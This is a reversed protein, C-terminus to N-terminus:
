EVAACAEVAQRKLDIIANDISDAQAGEAVQGRAQEMRKVARMYPRMIAYRAYEPSRNLWVIREAYETVGRAAEERYGRLRYTTKGAEKVLKWYEENVHRAETRDTGRKYVRNLLPVNRVDTEEGRILSGAMNVMQGVTTAYGGLYGGLLHEVAAPNLWGMTGRDVDNGGSADNLWRSASVLLENTNRYVSRWEPVEKNYPTDKYVPLGLWDRNVAIEVIPAVASPVLAHWAHSGGGGELLNIPMLQSLQSAVEMAIEAGDMRVEGGMLTGSLEGLGYIARYEVPLPICIWGHGGTPIVWNTRRVFDPLDYYDDDDDGSGFMSALVPALTGLLYMAAMATVARVPHRATARTFNSTGQLAANWFVYGLRGAGSAFRVWNSASRWGARPDFMTFGSGKKNFNVSIEKADWISRDLSRGSQMSTVFAAFRACNEVGRNFIDWYGGVMKGLQAVTLGRSDRLARTVARKHAEMDRMMAYGTEGGNDMFLRFLRETEDSEDLRGAEYRVILRMISGPNFRGFNVNFRAGYSGGEKVYAMTNTYVADRLFNSLVFDPRRTTYFAALQRNVSEGIRLVQEWMGTGGDPNTAGNLAQALRPNGNITLVVTRGGRRVLVQHERLTAKGPVVYPIDPSQRALRYRGPQEAVLRSMTRDFERLAASVQSPTMDDDLEPLKARWEGKVEDHELYLESVSVLDSPHNLVFNLFRQKVIQNRNGQMIVSDLMSSIQALPDDAKTTRGGAEKIVSAAGTQVADLYTYAEPSTVAAFGRLPIYHTYMGKIRDYGERSLLGTDLSKDLIYDTVARVRAWLADTDHAAEYEDVMRRAEAEAEAVNETGTLGTLGAFDRDRYEDIFDQLTKKSHPHKRLTDDYAKQAERLAMVRNRELGHKAMMYDYLATRSAKDKALKAAEDLLPKFLHRAVAKGEAENKSSLRNEGLYANEFGAIEEIHRTGGTEAEVIMQMAEKLSQMSDFMSEASNYWFSRVRRDYRERVIAKDYEQPTDAERFLLDKEEGDAQLISLLIKDKYNSFIETTPKTGPTTGFGNNYAAQSNILDLLKGKEIHTLKHDYYRNGNKDVAVTSRVTYDVNGIKLGCVYYQYEKVDPNKEVDINERTDIYISNEIIHPIAATSQLHEIDKYDHQLVENIGGNRRGRQLRITIGTDKNTYEGQLKKGYELANKKYQKLNDSPEIENGTIGVPKSNRLKEIRKAKASERVDAVQGINGHFPAYNGVKLEYQKAVDEAEGLISRYRGPEALNEYSRWLIYRLENDSLTVGSFNEFGISHLMRMFADKIKQWWGSRTAAEFNTEEALSALYEETATRFDWNRERALETIRRRVDSDASQFVNDLFTDFHEGFLERLGYHAVAEHLLTQEADYVSTHNPIVITIRGTSRSYFGKAKARRGDLTSADTVVEVNDLHLKAALDQVADVMRQREKEAFARRQAATRTSKGLLKSVPDNAISLDDDSLEGVGERLNDGNFSPNEFNRVINAADILDQKDIEQQVPQSASSLWALGKEKNAYRLTNNHAIPEIIYKVERGHFSRIDNVELYEGGNQIVRGLEIAVCVNKGDNDTMDTLIGITNADRQFVFIPDSIMSPMDQLASTPVNHKKEAGKKAVRQRMVIPLDPLFARMVGQPMGLHFMENTDMEGSDYRRLEENFRENVEGLEDDDLRYVDRYTEEGNIGPNEFNRVVNAASVLEQSDSTVAKLASHHLYDLAKEKNIYTAFGKNIWDVINSGGKGFVSTVINFDVDHGEGLTLTVLFNGQETRLETLISRNGEKGYNKFVAIPDAVARPLDRLEPLTFGHKRMKKMVKNGYLKMPKDEVGAARLVASPRGLSLTVSDANEETLGDLQENFRENVEALEDDLRYLADDENTEEKVRVGLKSLERVVREINEATIDARLKGRYPYFNHGHVADLLTKNEYYVAGDKKTKPVTLYYVKAWSSGTIDVKGDHSTVPMYDKIQKLRSIIPAGSTKLMSTNWKDPMLIGDHVNGDIDTYSILQGPYGGHEDQTDAIAQLINGTMIFGTKRTGTPIQSDWNELTTSRAADWNDNTAKYINRLAEPQSLKVEMRRRGDLTAFVALTTSATIKSDKSKYGCFIAPTSFDFVMSELNDPMLYSKGVEFMHLRQKLMDSNTNIRVMNDNHKSEVNDNTERVYDAIAAQKEEATRKQQRNIKDTQKAIDEQAKVKSREYRAEEAAVRAEDEKEITAIVQRIYDEPRKGKNVQAITKRIEAAKMPKRLVDMEVREVYSNRAFPNTGTPDIGESSVRKSLTKARLPMVTIKLDNSGTDNLYKILENYRRVVDDYFEEQEKTTLLAVYGTIKRADDEQPKYEELEAISVTNSGEGSKKLPSGMKEYIEPNDRLYEVVVQSGYKNLLDPAEVDNSESDQSTTTNANLSKLKTSLMMLFRNEAPVPLGLNIYYGRHVQGTRDIRGIMQMYDNIDSLPQAIIMTRQRQDSFKESAHLSIGTSASKNLILVDLTGNNFERQMKKKDKDTRRKVVVRGEDDREVYMDRGTLEGVKYGIGHLREIIADLPSIFIDSTSKRIFDQLEYYAKEGAEGLQKPSYRAHQEKGNEDKITYQMVTDLGRLLSASFTPEEIVEGASYDKISSEMTSELAIVPHRGAKIETDVENVIADVKLALMLQKTYNYTKSAFPVNSIGLKDTGRKIGASEAMVALEKDMADVMPKVYDEQFKIIANFAAITRDYNERSRKVTVPDTITKWDTVVDSMDRERRVMQGANTLERSMIEQLTVGGKEIIGILKDPEVKAQSMATRIAYLPMTDPRKAFTASAFTAAKASRLISQLYAGTNSTGAATHSEDLFLYNDEAIARLFTAKPTAKGDKSAKSKKTRGGRKKAAEEAEKQSIEDGSNVQSYTLVAYDYEDPLKGTAMVKKMKADSLGKYVVKGNADVMEGKNEKASPSNFIFPVLDGSGIDVLDRYIDSFLDAKQTIFIPKEGRKVAWRILAAMQRGKGVGTQDGIILAQGKKMQYIAMAVSDIQEAALAQHTEEITDYGLEKKVFEDINGNEAEIQSLVNDMAEVMAAPAVSELSFASNHPRYPLKEETLNRKKPEPSLGVRNTSVGVRDVRQVDPEPVGRSGGTTNGGTGRRTEGDGTDTRHEGRLVVESQEQPGEVSARRGRGSTDDTRSQGTHRKGDTNRSPRDAVSVLQGQQSRLIETGNTKEKSNIVENVIEYLDDFSEAKRIAKSEVPPYVATQAREEDSRRGAILIMRTPYTTGQKAYLRGDMDVVGKVNYHDYLYTFFPKMSKLGGNNGYEMNGGIIIAAKGDDKMSALANLTIQPDLGPIMKGDYEVEERKGFPPNAIIVDYQQGGEFPDAADQRTVQAFGQERLNDLRTEDLENAHVQQAPVSFVLMGNGATPELVKGDKKGSMAFHAANWAMPLPTSYQQMKIRNSSRAAITPQMDYLKCILDYSERSDRGHQEVVERAARVLGDEVLEQLLIDTRGDNDVEMGLSAARKRLDLISRYPRTGSDLAVLMDTKVANAFTRNIEANEVNPSATNAPKVEKPDAIDYLVPALGTDLVLRGDDDFDYVTAPKGHYIVADGKQFPSNEQNEVAYEEQASFLDAIKPEEQKRQRKGQKREAKASVEQQTNSKPVFDTVYHKVLQQVKRLLSQYTEDDAFFNNSSLYREEGREPNPNEIRVYGGKAKLNDGNQKDLQINIYLERKDGLPLYISIDGGIPAINAVAISRRRKGKKDVIAKPDIGLDKVLRNALRNADKVAKKEANRMYGYAENFDGEVQDADYYGLLALQENVKDLQSDIEEVTENVQKEDTAAEIRSEAKSAVAEAQGAVAETDAATQENEKRRENNRRNIIESKAKEAQRGAEQEAVVMEATAFADTSGRDFNAVDFARVDEYPTMEDAYGAEQVEPLDRAGNYFSKLYPRIADGLDAIMRRAYDAFRRAGAEIHYAAMETGIALIEPDIGMNMQGGLKQRMRKKLEEYRARSVLRNDAGYTDNTQGAETNSTQGNTNGGSLRETLGPKGVIFHDSLKAEGDRNIAQMLGEVDVQRMAPESGQQMDALSLPQADNVAETEDKPVLRTEMTDLTGDEHRVVVTAATKGKLERIERAGVVEISDSIDPMAYIDPLPMSATPMSVERGNRTAVVRTASMGDKSRSTARRLEAIGRKTKVTAFPKEDLKEGIAQADTLKDTEKSESVDSSHQTATDDSVGNLNNDVDTRSNTPKSKRSSKVDDRSQLSIAPATGDAHSISSVGGESSTYKHRIDDLKAYPEKKQNFLSKHLIIKGNEEVQTLEAFYRGIKKIFVVTRKGDVFTEKIHDPNDLVSQINLYKSVDVDDVSMQSGQAAHNRLAHEIFYGKGCYIRPDSIGDGALPMFREPIYAIPMPENGFEKFIDERSKGSAKALNDDSLWDVIRSEMEIREASSVESLANQRKGDNRLQGSNREVGSPSDAQRTADEARGGAPADGTSGQRGQQSAASGGALVNSRRQGDYTFKGNLLLEDGRANIAENIAEALTRPTNDPQEFLTAEQTGQVLDFIGDLTNQIFSQTQGKYMVALLVAFNSYRDSPLYSEGTVDDIAYQRQWTQAALRAERYNKASAFDPMQSLAHYASISAQLEANMREANPSDYDRYATALIAKQAKAPLTGFMEELHTNGNQFISQYMIGRLDNKAEATLNGRNDFASRYQTPSIHGRQQMWKLVDMGNRDVLESFTMEDNSSSLLRSAFSRMDGGMRQVVNRPKIRETGGSETDQAVFQGLTIAEDDSVDVMSVLVPRRMAEVDEPTLGFDAAHDTLYQKYKQAQAPEGAWMERLAASRNNGQIVEGRVNVTPAGTYATVSSTIEEPRINAAMRRASLVSAEDNREKPQAEDIFHLPNRQGNIHSPQLRSAEILAVRGAPINQDDFKVHVENGLIAGNGISIDPNEFNKVINAVADLDLYGVDALITRQQSMLAQIKQKDVYLLKGQAIWNLWEANDKPFLGRISNVELNRGGVVPNLSIGVVFKKGGREIEVVVNQAKDKNGYSFVALPNNIAKALDRVDAIDFEHNRQRSKEELRTSSLEIPLDPFGTSLLVGGPRGLRYIHGKPLTGDVQRQLEDNFQRNVADASVDGPLALPAQRDIKEGNVRRYGRARADQPTDDIIDPVGNLAERRIREAEELEARQREEQERRSRAAEEARRSQEAQAEVQRRQRTLAIRQWHTLSAKAREVAEKRDREAAIKEAITVGGRPKAREAKKLAAEKDAVMSDAVAQAMAEDGGTQEVIADWAADPDAREYDPQGQSDRPIPSTAVGGQKKGSPTTDKGTSTTDETISANNEQTPLLDPVDERHEALHWESSIPRLAEKIYMVNGDVMKRAVANKNMFHSSVSVEMGDKKVTISAFFKITEGNRNFTKVFVYSSPRETTGDSSTSSEEIIVDPDALTPRIMGFQADRGKAFLKTIQNEGMKVKGLPTDVMGDAGFERQWNAPTLEMEPAAEAQAEMEAILTNAEASTLSRGQVDAPLASVKGVDSSERNAPYQRPNNGDLLSQQDPTITDSTYILEDHVDSLANRGFVTNIANVEIDRGANKVEASVVVYSGNGLQLSTYLRYGKQRKREDDAYYRTIAFPNQIAEPLQKWVEEPLNHEADKGFHRSIVGYRITFKDGTLGLHKMFDPTKAVDFFSRQFLKSAAEKGKVYLTRIVDIFSAGSGDQSMVEAEAVLQPQVPLLEDIAKAVIAGDRPVFGDANQLLRDFIEVGREGYVTNVLDRIEGISKHGSAAYGTPSPDIESLYRSRIEEIQATLEPFAAAVGHLFYGTSGISGKGGELLYSLAVPSGGVTDGEQMDAPLASVKGTSQIDQLPATGNQKGRQPEPVIDSSGGSADKKEYATLLWQPTKEQGLMKSVVAKHTNSELVVRNDSAEVVDMDDLREQLGDLVDPHKSVIHELGMKSNGWALDIDGIDKHHLAAQAVGERRKTLFDIAAKAKGRFQDYINGLLGRGVPQPEVGSGDQSMVEAEAVPMQSISGDSWEVVMTGDGPLEVVTGSARGRRVGDGVRWASGQGPSDLNQIPSDFGRGDSAQGSGRVSAREVMRRSVEPGVVADVFSQEDLVSATGDPLTYHVGDDGVATVTVPVGGLNAVGGVAPIGFMAGREGRMVGDYATRGAEEAAAGAEEDAEISSIESVDAMRAKGTSADRVVLSESSGGRDISGDDNLSVSGSVVYARSGDGMAALVIRGSGENTNNRVMRTAAISADRAREGIGTEAGNVRARASMLELALGRDKGDIHQLAQGPSMTELLGMDEDSFVSSAEERVALYELWADHLEAPSSISQGNAYADNALRDDDSMEVAAHSLERGQKVAIGYRVLTEREQPTYSANASLGTVVRDILADPTNDLMDMMSRARDSAGDRISRRERASAYSQAAYGGLGLLGFGVQMPVLSLFTQVNQVPDVVEGWTGNGVAANLANSYVEELYEGFVGTVHARERLTKAVTNGSIARYIQGARSKSLWSGVARAAGAKGLAHMPLGLTRGLLDGSMESANEFATSAFSRVISEGLTEDGGTAVYRGDDAREIAYDDNQRQMAGAMVRGGGTTAAMGAGRAVGSALGRGLGVTGQAAAGLAKSLGRRTGLGAVRRALGRSASAVSRLGYRRLGYKLITKTAASGASSLPNVLMELIFPISEGTVEGAKYWGSVDDIHAARAAMGYTLADMLATQEPTLDDGAEVKHLVTNLQQANDLDTFGATWTDIDGVIDSVGRGLSALKRGKGWSTDRRAEDVIRQADEYQDRAADLMAERANWRIYTDADYGKRGMRVQEKDHALRGYLSDIDRGVTALDAATQQKEAEALQGGYRSNLEKYWREDYGMAQWDSDIRKGYLSSFERGAEEDLRATDWGEAKARAALQKYEPSAAYEKAYRDTISDAARQMESKLQRGEPTMSFDFSADDMADAVPSASPPDSVAFKHGFLSVEREHSTTTRGNGDATITVAPLENDEKSLPRMTGSRAEQRETRHQALSRERSKQLLALDTDSGVTFTPNPYKAPDLGWQTLQTDWGAKDSPLHMADPHDTLFQGGEAKPRRVRRGQYYYYDYQTATNNDHQTTNNDTPM